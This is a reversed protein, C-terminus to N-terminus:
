GIEFVHVCAKDGRCRASSVSLRVDPRVISVIGELWPWAFNSDLWEWPINLTLASRIIACFGKNQMVVKDDELRASPEGKVSRMASNLVDAVAELDHGGIGDRQIMKRGMDQGMQFAAKRAAGVDDRYKQYFDSPSNFSLNYRILVLKRVYIPIERVRRM